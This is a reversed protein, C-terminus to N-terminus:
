MCVCQSAIAVEEEMTQQNLLGGEVRLKVEVSVNDFSICTCEDNVLRLRGCDDIFCHMGCLGTQNCVYVNIANGCGNM